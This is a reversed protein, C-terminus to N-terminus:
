DPRLAVDEVVTERGGEAVTRADLAKLRAQLRPHTSFLNGLSESRFMLYGYHREEATPKDAVGHVRKLARAMADPSTVQAGVADAHFERIRSIGKTVLESAVFVTHRVVLGGGRAFFRSRRTSNRDNTAYSAMFSFVLTALDVGSVLVRQFGEAFQMRAVDNHLVHGLEHGIIADLEDAQFALLPKGIVVTAAQQTAGMAFANLVDTIGVTPRPLNLRDAIGHVREALWHNDAVMAVRFSASVNNSAGAVYRGGFLFGLASLALGISLAYWTFPNRMFLDFPLWKMNVVMWGVWNAACCSLALVGCLLLATPGWTPERPTLHWDILGLTDAIVSVARSKPAFPLLSLRALRAATRLQYFALAAGAAWATATFALRPWPVLAWAFTSATPHYANIAIWGIRLITVALLTKMLMRPSSESGSILEALTM